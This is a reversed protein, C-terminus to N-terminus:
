GPVCVGAGVGWGVRCHGARQSACAVAPLGGQEALAVGMCLYSYLPCFGWSGEGVGGWYIFDTNM